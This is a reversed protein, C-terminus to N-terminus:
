SGRGVGCRAVSDQWRASGHFLHECLLRRVSIVAHLLTRLEPPPGTHTPGRLRSLLSGLQGGREEDSIEISASCSSMM